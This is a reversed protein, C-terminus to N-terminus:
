FLDNLLLQVVFDKKLPTKRLPILTNKKILHSDKILNLFKNQIEKNKFFLNFMKLKKLEKINNEIILFEKEGFDLEDIDIIELTDKNNKLFMEFNSFYNFKYIQIIKINKLDEPLSFTNFYLNNRNWVRLIQLNKLEKLMINFEFNDKTEFKLEIINPNKLNKNMIEKKNKVLCNHFILVELYNMSNVSQIFNLFINDKEDENLYIELCKLYPNCELLIIINKMLLYNNKNIASIALHTLNKIPYLNNITNLNENILGLSKNRPFYEFENLNSINDGLLKDKLFQFLFINENSDYANILRLKKLKFEKKSSFIDKFNNSFNENLPFYDFTIDNIQLNKNLFKAILPYYKNEEKIFTFRVRTLKPYNFDLIGNVENKEKILKSNDFDIKLSQLQSLDFPILNNATLYVISLEQLNKLQQINPYNLITENINLSLYDIDMKIIQNNIMDIFKSINENEKGKIIEIELYYKDKIGMEINYLKKLIFNLCYRTFISVFENEPLDKKKRSEILNYFEQLNEYNIFYNSSENIIFINKPINQIELTFFYEEQSIMLIEKMKKNYRIYNMTQNKPFFKFIEYKLNTKFNSMNISLYFINM